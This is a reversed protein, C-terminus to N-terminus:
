EDDEYEGVIKNLVDVNIEQRESKYPINVGKKRLFSLRSLFLNREMGLSDAIDQSSSGWSEIYARIITENDVGTGMLAPKKNKRTSKTRRRNM